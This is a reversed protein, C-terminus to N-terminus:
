ASLRFGALLLRDTDELPMLFYCSQRDVYVPFNNAVMVILLRGMEICPVVEDRM